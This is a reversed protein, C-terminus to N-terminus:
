YNGIKVGQPCAKWIGITGICMPTGREPNRTGPEPNRPRVELRIREVANRDKRKDHSNPKKYKQAQGLGSKHYVETQELGSLSRRLQKRGSGTSDLTLAPAFLPKLPSGPNKPLKCTEAREKTGEQRPGTRGWPAPRVALNTTNLSKEGLREHTTPRQNLPSSV